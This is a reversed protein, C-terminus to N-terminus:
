MKRKNWTRTHDTYCDTILNEAVMSTVSDVLAIELRIRTQCANSACSRNKRKKDEKKSTCKRSSKANGFQHKDNKLACERQYKSNDSATNTTSTAFTFGKAKEKHSSKTRDANPNSSLLLEDQVDAINNLWESSVALGPQYLNMQKVYTLWKTKM